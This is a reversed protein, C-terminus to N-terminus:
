WCCIKVCYLCIEVTCGKGSGNWTDLVPITNSTGVTTAGKNGTDWYGKEMGEAWPKWLIKNNGKDRKVGIKSCVIRIEVAKGTTFSLETGYDIGSYARCFM